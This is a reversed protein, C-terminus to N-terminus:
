PDGASEIRSLIWDRVVNWVAQGREMDLEALEVLSDMRKVVEEDDLMGSDSLRVLFNVHMKLIHISLYDGEASEFDQLVAELEEEGADGSVKEMGDTLLGSWVSDPSALYQVCLRRAGEVDMGAQENQHIHTKHLTISHPNELLSNVTASLANLLAEEDAM